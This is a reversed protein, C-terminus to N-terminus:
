PIRPGRGHRRLLQGVVAAGVRGLGSPRARRAIRQPARILPELEAPSPRRHAVAFVLRDLDDRLMPRADARRAAVMKGGADRAARALELARLYARPDREGPALVARPYEVALEDLLEDLVVGWTSPAELDAPDMARDVLRDVARKFRLATEVVGEDDDPLESLFDVLADYVRAAAVEDLRDIEDLLDSVRAVLSERYREMSAPHHELWFGVEADIVTRLTVLKAFTDAKM